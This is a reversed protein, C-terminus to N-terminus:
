RSGRPRRYYQVSDNKGCGSPGIISVFDREHIDFTLGDLVQTAAEKGPFGKRIGNLRLQVKPSSM